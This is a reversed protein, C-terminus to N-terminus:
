KEEWVGTNPDYSCGATCALWNKTPNSGQALPRCDHCAYRYECDCCKSIADKTTHWYDQLKQGQLVTILSEELINGCIQDRAFICPIVNGDATVALKGALCSHCRQAKFFSQEDTYFPPKVPPKSYTDPKLQEDDGRGTPRIVDPPNVEVGLTRCLNMINEVQNENTKMIISAIRLPIAANLAKKISALTRTFSGNQQTVADHVEANDAYITTALNVNHAKFFQVDEDTILTANSFIEIYEFGLKDAFLILERWKPYMLPEGGILQIARAGTEYAEQITKIWTSHPVKAEHCSPGSTAYCHLCKNNCASTLELWLFELKAENIVPPPLRHPEHYYYAALELKVLKDLFELYRNGQESNMDFVEELVNKECQSILKLAQFNISHVKGTNFNYIAGRAKGEVLKCHDHLQFYL